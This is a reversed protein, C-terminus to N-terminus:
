LDKCVRLADYLAAHINRGAVADGARALWFRGGPNVQAFPSRGAIMAQHDLQGLNRSRPKLSHYLDEAPVIGHESVVHDALREQLKGTLVHRLTIRKRGGDAAVAVPELLSEMVVGQRALDRLVVAANTPGLDHGAMRDPTALTVKCGARAMVDACVLAAHDGAEDLQLVEGSVRAEGSLVEWSSTILHGGPIDLPEPWGGTAAIVADPEEALVDEAEAYTNLRVEVGLREVESILWDAVGWIQRRTMGKAALGVQGGLRGSAEFLVVNHGREAAVRAAELGAPGGGAVVVKRREPAPAIVHPMVAERGTAANHGCVAPKGQNVRDVCYGLAVCPRIRAEESQQLKQVLYPDAMHARTMGIMDAQGERIAHRATAIDAVGGAHFVPLDVAQRIAGAVNLHPAAPMGMPAVWDALGLDDYPAGALVNLFDVAGTAAIKQAAEICERASLGGEALEDGTVRMGLILDPGVAARVAELVQLTLRLRNDLSGGYDDERTNVLPSLFQGLLHSHSLIEIGDFGGERCRVAANAFDQIIRSIDEMEMAKPFARHARERRGSPGLVPLWHGDDWATRRGMHTIQCMVAAGHSRVGAMLERFWPIISDDGAYLQGFVSPSDPAINTSGGIMTLAIGGKAKEEHYLRYRDRPHGGEQFSPAHATSMIRNRLTLHRIQLPQLLPDTDTSM